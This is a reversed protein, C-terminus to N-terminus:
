DCLHPGFRQDPRAEVELLAARAGAIASGPLDGAAAGAVLQDDDPRAEWGTGAIFTTM